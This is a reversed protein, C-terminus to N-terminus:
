SLSHLMAQQNHITIHFAPDISIWGNHKLVVMVQNVRKRSAGVLEAIDNQTLRIPIHVEGAATKQGYREGFALLQRIVRRNVDLAALAQIHNTSYRLRASLIRLLNQSLQPMSSLADQFDNRSMWLLSSDELTIVSASHGVQDVLSMEGVPDGLGLIAVIVDTGDPQPAFVKVTGSMIIYVLEGPTGVLMVETGAPYARQHLRARLWARQRADLGAFLPVSDLSLEQSKPIMANRMELRANWAPVVAMNNNYAPKQM